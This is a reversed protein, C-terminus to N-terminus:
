TRHRMRTGIWATALLLAGVGIVWTVFGEPIPGVRGLPLGGRDDPNDLYQVYRVVSDLEDEDLVDGPFIPM